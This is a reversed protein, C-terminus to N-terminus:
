AKVVMVTHSAKQHLGALFSNCHHFSSRLWATFSRLADSFSMSPRFRVIFLAPERGIWVQSAVRAMLAAEFRVAPACSM